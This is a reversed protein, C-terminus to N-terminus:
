GQWQRIVCRQSGAPLVKGPNLVERPDLAAEVSALLGLEIPSRYRLLSARRTQGVGHEASFSGGAAMVADEIRETLGQSGQRFLELRTGQPPLVNVHLNGDGIHGFVHLRPALEEQTIIAKIEGLIEPIRSIPVALDHKAAGGPAAGRRCGKM